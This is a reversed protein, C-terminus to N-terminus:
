SKAVYINLLSKAVYKLESLKLYNVHSKKMLNDILFLECSQATKGDYTADRLDIIIWALNEVSPWLAVADSIYGHVSPSDTYIMIQITGNVLLVLSEAAAAVNQWVDKVDTEGCILLAITVQHRNKAQQYIKMAKAHMGPSERIPKARHDPLLFVFSVFCFGLIALSYNSFLFKRTLNRSVLRLFGGDIFINTSIARALKNPSRFRLTHIM